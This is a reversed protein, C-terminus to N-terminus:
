ILSVFTYLYFCLPSLSTGLVPQAHTNPESYTIVLLMKNFQTECFSMKNYVSHLM